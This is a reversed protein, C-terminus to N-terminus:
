ELLHVEKLMLNAVFKSKLNTNIDDLAFFSFLPFKINNKNKKIPALKHKEKPQGM